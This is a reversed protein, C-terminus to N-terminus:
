LLLLKLVVKQAQLRESKIVREHKQVDMVQDKRLPIFEFTGIGDKSDSDDFLPEFEYNRIKDKLLDQLEKM